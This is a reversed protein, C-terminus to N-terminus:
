LTPKTLTIGELTEIYIESRESRIIIPHPAVNVVLIGGEVAFQPGRHLHGCLHIKSGAILPIEILRTSGQYRSAERHKKDELDLLKVTPLFHTVTILAKSPKWRKLFWSVMGWDDLDTAVYRRDDCAFHEPPPDVQLSDDYWGCIGSITVGNIELPGHIFHHAGAKESAKSFQLLKEEFYVDGCTSWLDHNGAIVAVESYDSICKLLHYVEAFRGWASVDGAVIVLDFGESCLGVVNEMLRKSGDYHVDSFALIRVYQSPCAIFITNLTLARRTEALSITKNKQNEITPPM